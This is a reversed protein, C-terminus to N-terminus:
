RTNVDIQFDVPESHGPEITQTFRWGGRPQRGKFRTEPLIDADKLPTGEPVPGRPPHHVVIVDYEGAVPGNEEDFQYQGDTIGIQAAPGSVKPTFTILGNDVPQGERTVAGSIPERDPGEYGSGFCGSLVVCGALGL